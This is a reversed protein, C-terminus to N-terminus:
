YKRELFKGSCDGYEFTRLRRDYAKKHVELLHIKIFSYKLHVM